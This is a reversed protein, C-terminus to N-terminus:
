LNGSFTYEFDVLWNGEHLVVKIKRGIRDHSNQFGIVHTTDNIVADEFINISADFYDKKEKDSKTLYSVKQKQLLEKNQEDQIMYFAAKEFDGKLTADIFERGADLANEAKPYHKSSGCSSIVFMMLLAILYRTRLM